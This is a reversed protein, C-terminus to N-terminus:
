CNVDVVMGQSSFARNAEAVTFGRSFPEQTSFEGQASSNVFSCVAGQISFSCFGNAVITPQYIIKQDQIARDMNEVRYAIPPLTISIKETACDPEPWLREINAESLRSNTLWLRAGSLM